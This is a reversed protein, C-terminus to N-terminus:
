DTGAHPHSSSVRARDYAEDMRPAGSAIMRDVEAQFEPSFWSRRESWYHQVGPLATLSSMTARLGGAGWDHVGRELSYHYSAEWAKMVGFISSYLRFIENPRLSGPDRFGRFVIDSLVDNVSWDRSIDTLKTSLENYRSRQEELSAARVQSAVYLLSALVGFAALLEAVAQIANWNL